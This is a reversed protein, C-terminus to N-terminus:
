VSICQGTPAIRSTSARATWPTWLGCEGSTWGLRTRRERRRFCRMGRAISLSRAPYSDHALSDGAAGLDQDHLLRSERVTCLLCGAACAIDAALEHDDM